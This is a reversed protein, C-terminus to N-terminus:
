RINRFAMKVSLTSANKSKSTKKTPKLSKVVKPRMSMAPVLNADKRIVLFTVLATAAFVCLTSIIAHFISITYTMQPLSYLINYKINMIYPLLLPGVVVGFIVGCLVILLSLIMYHIIIRSKSIGLAKLTGIQIRDKVILQTITTLVVLIAVLFFIM